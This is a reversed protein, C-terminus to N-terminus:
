SFMITVRDSAPPLDVYFMLSRCAWVMGIQKSRDEMVLGRALSAKPSSVVKIANCHGMGFAQSFHVEEM